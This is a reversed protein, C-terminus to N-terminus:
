KKLYRMQINAKVIWDGEARAPLNKKIESAIYDVDKSKACLQKAKKDFAAIYQKMELVDLKSSIPGHGPVIKNVDLTLIFNLVSVWSKIDGDAMFPHFGTFLIDGAFLVKKDPILVLISGNTHSAKPYILQVKQDGLDVEMGDNFTLDPLV